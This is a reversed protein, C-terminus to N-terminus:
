CARRDTSLPLERAQLAKLGYIVVLASLRQSDKSGCTAGSGQSVDGPSTNKRENFFLSVPQRNGRGSLSNSFNDPAANLLHTPSIKANLSRRKKRSIKRNNDSSTVVGALFARAGCLKAFEM